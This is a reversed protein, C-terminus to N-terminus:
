LEAAPNGAVTVGAPVDKTVVAGAGIMAMSGISVGPLIVAGAGISAGNHVITQMPSTYRKSRPNKDNTFSVNPGVFVDDGLTVGNWIQVGNKVTVRDGLRAGGEIFSGACINNDFGLSAGPLIVCFQWIRTGSGIEMTQVDASEHIFVDMM